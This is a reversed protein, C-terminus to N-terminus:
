LWKHGWNTSKFLAVVNAPAHGEIFEKPPTKSELSFLELPKGVDSRRILVEGLTDDCQYIFIKGSCTHMEKLAWRGLPTEPDLTKIPNTQTESM